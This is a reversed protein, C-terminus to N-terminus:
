EKGRLRRDFFATVARSPRVHINVVVRLWRDGHKQIRALFHRTGDEHDEVKEPENVAKDVWEKRISREELMASFHKTFEM